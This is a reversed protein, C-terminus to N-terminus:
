ARRRQREAMAAEEAWIEEVTKESDPKAPAPAGRGVHVSGAAAELKRQRSTRIEETAKDRAQFADLLRIADRAKESSTLAQMEAPQAQLWTSFEATKVAEGWGPHKDAILEHQLEMRLQERLEERLANPDVQPAAAPRTAGLREEIAEAWEPFDTKLRDWKEQSKSAAKIENDSPADQVARQAVAAKALESQMQSVRGTFTKVNEALGSVLSELKAVRDEPEEVKPPTETAADKADPRAAAPDGDGEPADGDAPQDTRETSASDAAAQAPADNAAAAAAEENWMAEIDDTKTPQTTDNAETTM